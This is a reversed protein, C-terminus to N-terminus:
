RRWPAGLSAWRKGRVGTRPGAQGRSKARLVPSMPVFWARGKVLRDVCRCGVRVAERKGGAPVGSGCAGPAELDGRPSKGSESSRRCLPCAAPLACLLTSKGARVVESDGLVCLGDRGGGGASPRSCLPRPNSPHHAEIMALHPVDSPDSSSGDGGSPFNLSRLIGLKDEYKQM